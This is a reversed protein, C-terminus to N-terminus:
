SVSFRSLDLLPSYLWLYISLHVTVDASILVINAFLIPM